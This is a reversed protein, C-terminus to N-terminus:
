PARVSVAMTFEWELEGHAPIVAYRGWAAAADMRDPYGLCPELAVRAEGAGRTDIWIGLCPINEADWTCTVTLGDNHVLACRGVGIRPVYLKDAAASGPRVARLDTIGGSTLSAM